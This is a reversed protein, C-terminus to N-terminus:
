FTSLKSAEGDFHELSLFDTTFIMHTFCHVLRMRSLVLTQRDIAEQSEIFGDLIPLGM